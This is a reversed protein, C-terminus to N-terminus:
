FYVCEKDQQTDAKQRRERVFKPEPSPERHEFTDLFPLLGQEYRQRYGEPTNYDIAYCPREKNYYTQYAGMLTRFEERTRCREVHFDITLEEKIWGNLAENVPNDTPKGARSM